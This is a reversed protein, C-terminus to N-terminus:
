TRSSRRPKRTPSPRDSRNERSLGRNVSWRSTILNRHLSTHVTTKLFCISLRFVFWLTVHNEEGERGRGTVAEPQVRCSANPVPYSLVIHQELGRNPNRGQGHRRDTQENAPLRFPCESSQLLGNSIPHLSSSVCTVLLPFSTSVPICTKCPTKTKVSLLNRGNARILMVVCASAMTLACGCKYKGQPIMLPTRDLRPILAVTWASVVSNGVADNWIM